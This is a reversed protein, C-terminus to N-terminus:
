ARASLGFTKRPALFSKWTGEFVGPMHADIVVDRDGSVFELVPSRAWDMKVYLNHPGPQLTVQLSEDRGIGGITQDDLVVKLKRLGGYMKSDRVVTLTAM